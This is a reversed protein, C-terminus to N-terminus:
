NLIPTKIVPLLKENLDNHFFDVFFLVPLVARSQRRSM